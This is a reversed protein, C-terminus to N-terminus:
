ITLNFSVLKRINNSNLATEAYNIVLSAQRLQLRPHLMSHTKLGM